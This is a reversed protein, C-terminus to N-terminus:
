QLLDNYQFEISKKSLYTRRDKASAASFRGEIESKIMSVIFESGLTTIQKLRFRRILGLSSIDELLLQFSFPNFKSVHADIYINQRNFECLCELYNYDIESSLKIKNIGYSQENISEGNALYAMNKHAEFISGYTPKEHQAYFADIWEGTNTLPKWCDFSRSAIPIAMSLIGNNRLANESDILFQIPNPQHEFNHSSVIYDLCNKSEIFDENHYLGYNRLSKSLTGSFIIDVPEIKDIDVNPDNEYSKKVLSTPLIDMTLVKWGDKKPCIPSHLPGIELGLSQKHLNSQLYDIREMNQLSFSRHLNVLKIKVLNLLESLQFDCNRL